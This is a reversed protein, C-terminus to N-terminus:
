SHRESFPKMLPSATCTLFTISPLYSIDRRPNQESRASDRIAIPQRPQQQPFRRKRFIQCNVGRSTKALWEDSKDCSIRGMDIAMRQQLGSIDMANELGRQFGNTADSGWLTAETAQRAIIALSTRSPIPDTISAELFSPSCYLMPVETELM